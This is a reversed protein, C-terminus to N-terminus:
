LRSAYRGTGGPPTTHFPNVGIGVVLPTGTAVAVYVPNAFENSEQSERTNNDNAQGGQRGSKWRHRVDVISMGMENIRGAVVIRRLKGKLKGISRSAKPSMRGAVFVKKVRGRWEKM